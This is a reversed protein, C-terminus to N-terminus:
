RQRPPGPRPSLAAWQTLQARLAETPIGLTDAVDTDRQPGNMQELAWLDAAQYDGNLGALLDAGLQSIRETFRQHGAVLGAALDWPDDGWVEWANMLAAVDARGAGAATYGQSEVELQRAQALLVSALGRLADPDATWAPGAGEQADVAHLRVYTGDEPHEDVREVTWVVEEVTLDVGTYTETWPVEGAPRHQATRIAFDSESGSWTTQTM